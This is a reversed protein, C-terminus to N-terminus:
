IRSLVDKAKAWLTTGKEDKAETVEIVAPAEWPTTEKAYYRKEIMTIVDNEVVFIVGGIDSRKWGAFRAVHPTKLQWAPLIVVRTPYNSGSDAFRHVHARLAIDPPRGGYRACEAVIEAALMNAANARTWERQGMTTFHMAQFIREQVKLNLMWWTFTDTESNREFGLERALEEENSSDPGSHARTGRTLFCYDYEQRIPKLIDITCKRIVAPNFTVFDISDHHGPVDMADADDIFYRKGGGSPEFGRAYELFQCWSDYIWQRATNLKLETGDDDTQGPLWLGTSSGTHKDAVAVLVDRRIKVKVGWELRKFWM